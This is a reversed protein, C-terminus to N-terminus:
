RTPTDKKTQEPTQKRAHELASKTREHQRAIAFLENLARLEPPNFWTNAPGLLVGRLEAVSRPM